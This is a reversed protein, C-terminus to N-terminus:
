YFFDLQSADAVDLDTNISTRVTFRDAANASEVWESRSIKIGIM